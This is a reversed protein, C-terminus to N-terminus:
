KFKLTPLFLFLTPLLLSHPIIPCVALSLPPPPPLYHYIAKFKLPRRLHEEPSTNPCYVANSACTLASQLQCGFLGTGMSRSCVSVRVCLTGRMNCYLELFFMKLFFAVRYSFLPPSISQVSWSHAFSSSPTLDVPLLLDTPLTCPLFLLSLLPLHRWITLTPNLCIFHKKWEM